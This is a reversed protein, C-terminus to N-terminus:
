LHDSELMTRRKLELEMVDSSLTKAMMIEKQLKDNEGFFEDWPFGDYSGFKKLWLSPISEPDDFPLYERRVLMPSRRVWVSYEFSDEESKKQDKALKEGIQM